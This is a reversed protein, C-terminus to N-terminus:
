PISVPWVPSRTLSRPTLWRPSCPTSLPTCTPCRCGSHQHGARPGPRRHPCQCPHDCRAHVDPHHRSCWLHRAPRWPLVEVPHRPETKVAGRWALRAHRARNFGARGFPTFGGIGMQNVLAAVHAPAALQEPMPSCASAVSLLPRWTAADNVPFILGTRIVFDATFTVRRAGHAFRAPEAQPWGSRLPAPAESFLQPSRARDATANRGQLRISRSRRYTGAQARPGPRHTDGPRVLRTSKM